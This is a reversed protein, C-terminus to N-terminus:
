QAKAMQQECWVKAEAATMFNYSANDMGRRRIVAAWDGLRTHWVRGYIHEHMLTYANDAADHTWTPPIPHTTM